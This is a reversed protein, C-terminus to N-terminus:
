NEDTLDYGQLKESKGKDLDTRGSTSALIALSDKLDALKRLQVRQGLRVSSSRTTIVIAGHETEPLFPRIDYAKSVIEGTDNENEVKGGAANGSRSGRNHLKVDDYNDYIILWRNNMPEDLWRKVAEVTEDLDRNSLANEIYAVSTTEITIRQALRQYSQKLATTDRADLWIVASYEDHHKKAFAITTQTKGMGGLGHLVVTRREGNWELAKHLRRLEERRAFFRNM